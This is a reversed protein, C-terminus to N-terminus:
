RTMARRGCAQRSRRRVQQRQLNHEAARARREHPLVIQRCRLSQCVKALLGPRARAGEAPKLRLDLAPPLRRLIILVPLAPREPECSRTGLALWPGIDVPVAPPERGYDTRLAHPACGDWKYTNNNNDPMTGHTTSIFEVNGFDSCRVESDSLVKTSPRTAGRPAAEGRAPVGSSGAAAM